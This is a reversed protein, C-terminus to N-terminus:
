EIEIDDIELDNLEEIAEEESAKEKIELEQTDGVEVTNFIAKYTTLGLAIITLLFMLQIPRKAGTDTKSLFLSVSGFLLALIGPIYAIKSLPTVALVIALIATIFGLVIMLKKM